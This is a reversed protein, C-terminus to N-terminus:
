LFVDLELRNQEYRFGNRLFENLEKMERELEEKQRVLDKLKARQAMEEENDIDMPQM